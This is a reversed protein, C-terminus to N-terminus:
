SWNGGTTSCRRLTAVLEDVKEDADDAADDGVEIAARVCANVYETLVLLAVADIATTVPALQDLVDICYRGDEYMKTIGALQGTAKRLGSM